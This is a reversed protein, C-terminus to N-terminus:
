EQCPAKSINLASAITRRDATTLHGTIEALRDIIEDSEYGSRSMDLATLFLSRNWNGPTAGFSLFYLTDGKLIRTLDSKVYKPKEKTSAPGLWAELADLPVRGRKALLAQLVNNDRKVNPVRSLRSPNRASTDCSPFKTYIRNVLADYEARTKCPTELSIIMHLSKSGSFTLTTFPCKSQTILLEQEGITGEDFEVLINRYASVNADKRTLMLPNISFFQYVPEYPVEFCPTVHTGYVTDTFCIGEGPEFLGYFM